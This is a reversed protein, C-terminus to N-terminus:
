RAHMRRYTRWDIWGGLTRFGWTRDVPGCLVLTLTGPLVAVIRHVDTARRFRVRRSAWGRPTWEVYGGRLTISLFSVPHDHPDPHPDATRIWHLMAAGGFLRGGLLRPLRFDPLKFFHLRRLYLEGRWDVDTWRWLAWGSGSRYERRPRNM